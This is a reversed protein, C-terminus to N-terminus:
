ILSCCCIISLYIIKLVVVVGYRRQININSKPLPMNCQPCIHMIDKKDDSNCGIFLITILFVLLSKVLLKM